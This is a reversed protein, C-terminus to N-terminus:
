EYEPFIYQAELGVSDELFQRPGKLQLQTIENSATCSPYELREEHGKLGRMEKKMDQVIRNIGTRYSKKQDVSLCGIDFSDDWENIGQCVVGGSKQPMFILKQCLAQGTFFIM